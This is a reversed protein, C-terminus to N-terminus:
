RQVAALHVEEGERTTLQVASGYNNAYKIDFIAVDRERYTTMM